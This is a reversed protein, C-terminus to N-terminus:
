LRLPRPTAAGNNRETRCERGEDEHSRRLTSLGETLRGSSPVDGLWLLSRVPLTLRASAFFPKEDSRSVRGPCATISGRSAASPAPCSSPTPDSTPSRACSRPARRPHPQSQPKWLDHCVGVGSIFSLYQGYRGFDM